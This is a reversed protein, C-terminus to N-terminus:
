PAVGCVALHNRGQEKASYLAKDALAILDTPANNRTPFMTAAGLSLTVHSDIDSCRHEIRLASVAQRVREGVIRAGELSIGPLLLAFEEGGYRAVMDGPRFIASKLAGAVRVLCEDGGQHGYCDNYKKFFDIDTLILSFPLDRERALRRWERDFFEDFYRRNAIGTLGDIRAMDSLKRNLEELEKEATKRRTINKFQSIVAKTGVITTLPAASIIYHELAGDVTTLTIDYEKRVQGACVELPCSNTQCLDYHLLDRCNRGVVESLSKNLLALMAQNVRIVMGDDRIAWMADSVSSFIQELEMGDIEARLQKSGAEAIAAELSERELHLQQCYQKLEANERRAQELQRFVEDITDTPMTM